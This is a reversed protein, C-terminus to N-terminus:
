VCKSKIKKILWQLDYEADESIPKKISVNDVISSISNFKTQMM